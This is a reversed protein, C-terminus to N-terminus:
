PRPVFDQLLQTMPDLAHQRPAAIDPPDASVFENDNEAVRWDPRSCIDAASYDLLDAQVGILDPVLGKLYLARDPQDLNSGAELHLICDRRRIPSTAGCLAPMM